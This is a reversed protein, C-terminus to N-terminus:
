GRRLAFFAGANSLLYVTSGAARPPATAGQGPDFSQLLEGTEKDAVYLGSVAATVLLYKDWLVPQALEGQKALSQQWLKRGKGDICFLGQTSSVAYVRESTPDVAVPGANELDFRWKTSGDKPDLAYVGTAFCSVYLTGNHLVPTSDVDTFRSKDGALSRSWLVEGSEASLCALYGDPFGLYIKEGVLLVNSNGRIAFGDGLTREYRWVEKGDELKYAEVHGSISAVYVRGNHVVPATQIPGRNGSRQSQWKIEGDRARLAILRGDDDGLLVLPEAGAAIGAPIYRPESSIGSGLDRAWIVDGSRASLAYFTRASSGIFVTSGDDSVAAVAFEQPKYSFFKIDTVLPRSWRLSLVGAPQIFREQVLPLKKGGADGTRPGGVCGWGGNLALAACLLRAGLRSRVKGLTRVIM